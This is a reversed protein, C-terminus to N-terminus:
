EVANGSVEVCRVSFPFLFIFTSTSSQLDLLRAANLDKGAKKTIMRVANDVQVTDSFVACNGPRSSSGSFMPLVGFFYVGWIKGYLHAIPKENENPSLKVGNLASGTEISSCATISVLIGVAMLSAVIKKIM